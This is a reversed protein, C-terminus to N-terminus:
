TGPGPRAGWLRNYVNALKNATEPTFGAVQYPWDFGNGRLQNCSHSIMVELNPSGDAPTFIFAMGPTFCNAPANGNFSEEDGLLDLMEQKLSEEGPVSSTVLFGNLRQQQPAPTMGPIQGVPLGTMQGFQQVGQQFQQQM